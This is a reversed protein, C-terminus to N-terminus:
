PCDTLPSIIGLVGVDNIDIVLGHDIYLTSYQEVLNGDIFVDRVHIYDENTVGALYWLYLTDLATFTVFEQEVDISIDTLLGDVYTSNTVTFSLQFNTASDENEFDSWVMNSYSVITGTFGTTGTNNTTNNTINDGANHISDDITNSVQTTNNTNNYNFVFSTSNEQVDFNYENSINTSVNYSSGFDMTVGSAGATQQPLEDEEYYLPLRSPVQSWSFPRVIEPSLAQIPNQFWLREATQGLPDQQSTFSNAM